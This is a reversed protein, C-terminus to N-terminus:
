PEQLTLSIYVVFEDGNLRASKVTYKEEFRRSLYGRLGAVENKRVKVKLVRDGTLEQAAEALIKYKSSRRGRGAQLATLQENADSETIVDFTFNGAKKTGSKKAMTRSQIPLNTRFESLAVGSGILAILPARAVFEM